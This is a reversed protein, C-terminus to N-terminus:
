QRDEMMRVLIGIMMGGGIALAIWGFLKRWPFAPDTRRRLWSGLLLGSFACGTLCSLFPWDVTHNVFHGCFGMLSNVAIVILATSVATDLGLGAFTLAPVILFGGGIGTSGAVFGVFIGSPLLHITRPRESYARAVRQVFMVSAAVMMLCTFVMLLFDEKMLIFYGTHLLVDPIEEIIWRRAIFSLMISPIGFALAAAPDIQRHRGLLGAFSVIGVIFLAYASASVVDMSFIFVLVPVALLTGGAGMCGLMIGILILAAYGIIEM